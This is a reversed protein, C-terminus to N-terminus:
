DLEDLDKGLLEAVLEAIVMFVLDALDEPDVARAEVPRRYVMVVPQTVAGIGDRYLRGLPIGRDVVSEPDFQASRVEDAAPVDEVAFEVAALEAAWHEELEEVADLVLDDFAESRTRHLPVGRPALGGRVGRGRRDRRRRTLGTPRIRRSFGQV